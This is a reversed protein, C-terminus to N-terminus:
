MGSEIWEGESKLYKKGVNEKNLVSDLGANLTYVRTLKFEKNM